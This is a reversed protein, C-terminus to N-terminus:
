RVRIRKRARCGTGAVVGPFAGAALLLREARTELVAYVENGQAELKIEGLIGRLIRRGRETDRKLTGQLDMMMRRYIAMVRGADIPHTDPKSAAAARLRTQEAEAAMLRTRLAESAGDQAIANVLNGIEREIEHLRTQATRGAQKSGDRLAAIRTKVGAQLDALFAPAMFEDRVAALIRHDAIRRDVLPMGRCVHKGRDKYAACGYRTSNIAVVAGGCVGCRLLGGLLTRPRPGKGRAGGALRTGDMRARVREWLREDVIRLKPRAEIRWEHRPRDVRQRRRTDPDKIWRSRNWIYRGAYLENNLIGSGKNPSGYLASVAWTGARPSPVKRRNLEAAIKQVSEGRAYHRFIWRVWRVREEDIELRHGIPEGRADLGAIISRYGYSIGGAHYGRAVQGELGRHTKHGLDRIYGENIAGRVARMLERGTLQTDYGDAVGIIRLGRHELRRVTTEQEVLDRALRDLSELLIIDFRGARAAELMAGAGRRGSILTQGSTEVDSYVDLVQWGEHEARARCVRAQDDISTERQKDTSFRAYICARM